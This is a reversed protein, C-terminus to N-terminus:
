QLKLFGLPSVLSSASSPLEDAIPDGGTEGVPPTVGSKQKEDTLMDGIAAPMAALGRLIDQRALPSLGLRDELPRMVREIAVLRDLGAAKDAGDKAAIWLDLYLAWRGACIFDPARIIRRQLYDEVVGKFIKRSRESTLWDPVEFGALTRAIATEGAAIWSTSEVAGAALQKKRHGPNGRLAKVADPIPTRGRSM